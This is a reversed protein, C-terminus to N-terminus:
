SMVMAYDFRWLEYTEIIFALKQAYYKGTAYGSKKLGICWAAYYPVMEQGFWTSEVQCNYGIKNGYKGIMWNYRPEKALLLTHHAYSEASSHYMQFRDWANDDKIQVCDYALQHHYFDNDDIYGDAKYNKYKYCKIGFHNNAKRAIFSDGANTELIGQALTVSAPIRSKKMEQLAMLAHHDIYDLYRQRQVLQRSGLSNLLKQEIDLRRWAWKNNSNLLTNVNKNGFEKQLKQQFDRGAIELGTKFDKSLEAVIPLQAIGIIYNQIDRQYLFAIYGLFFFVLGYLFGKFLKDM